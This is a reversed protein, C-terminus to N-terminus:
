PTGRFFFGLFNVAVFATLDIARAARPVGGGTCRSSPIFRRLFGLCLGVKPFSSFSVSYGSPLLECRRYFSMM